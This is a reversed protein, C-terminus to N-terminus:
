KIDYIKFNENELVELILKKTGDTLCVHKDSSCELQNTFGIKSLDEGCIIDSVVYTKKETVIEKVM